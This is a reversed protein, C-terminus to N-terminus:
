DSRAGSRAARIQREVFAEDLPAQVLLRRFFFGAAFQEALHAPDHAPDIEGRAAARRFVDAVVERRRESFLRQAERLEADHAAAGVLSPLVRGWDEHQLGDSLERGLERLEDDLSGLDPISSFACLREFAEALLDVREGWNRYITSRAVGSRDAIAEITIREFGDDVLLDLTARLVTERTRAVRPDGPDVSPTM